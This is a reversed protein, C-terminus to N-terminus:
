NNKGPDLGNKPLEIGMVKSEGDEMSVGYVQDAEGVLADNHSIVIFQAMGAQKRILAAVKKTNTKDLAADAEDLIYFPSPRHRQIAFLFTFATLTKEGVSGVGPAVNSAPSGISSGIPIEQSIANTSVLLSSRSSPQQKNSPTQRSRTGLTQTCWPPM